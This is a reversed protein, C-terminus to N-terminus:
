EAPLLLTFTAGRGVTSRVDLTGGHAEAISRAIFLGLGTGPKASGSAQARGFKEFILRQHESAIGPGRDTVDIRLAGNEAFATVEVPEGAPSYKIANEILNTLVQRLRERDGRITPLRGTVSAQVPVEDQAMEAAAAADHLLEGVDVDSFSFSFTGAEIRSTDLVDGILTALRGTEDAILALFADRQDVTLQRWRQQLTRASGIVAAMPSRLEHSVLSVFDARLASLRRLEEVTHREAEYSTINQVATAALRGLLSVLEVDEPSFADPEERVLSLMGITRAGVLLPAGLRSHLGLEIFEREEPYTQDAMERRLVPQGKLVEELLSGRMPRGSGVPFVDDAGRGAAAIVHAADNEVLVIATREFPVLGQLERIFAAFAEQLDLSSALARACRGAAELADVRRGLEDRLGEAELARSEALGRQRNLRLVLWGVILSLLAEVGLQFTVYELHFGGPFRRAHLWEYGFLFPTTAITLLLAGVIGYRLAAEMLVLFLVQRIPSNAQYSYVLVYAGVVAADFALAGIGVFFLTRESLPRYAIALLAVAGAGLVATVIWAWREYGRPYNTAVAVQFVAVGLGCLRVWAVWREAERLRHARPTEAAM